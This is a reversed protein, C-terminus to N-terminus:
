GSPWQMEANYSVKIRISMFRLSYHFSLQYSHIEYMDEPSAQIHSHVQNENARDVLPLKTVGYPLMSSPWCQSLCHSLTQHSWAVVQVLTSKDNTLDLALWRFAIECTIVWGVILLIVQFIVKRFNWEFRRPTLLNIPHPQQFPCKVCQLRSLIATM